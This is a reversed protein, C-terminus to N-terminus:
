MVYEDRKTPYATGSYVGSAVQLRPRRLATSSTADKGASEANYLEEAALLVEQAQRDHYAVRNAMLEFAQDVTFIYRHLRSGTMVIERGEVLQATVALKGLTAKDETRDAPLCHRMQILRKSIPLSKDFVAQAAPEPATTFDFSQALAGIIIECPEEFYKKRFREIEIDAIKSKVNYPLPERAAWSSTFYEAPDEVRAAIGERMEPDTLWNKGRIIRHRTDLWGDMMDGFADVITKHYAGPLGQRIREIAAYRAAITKQAMGM